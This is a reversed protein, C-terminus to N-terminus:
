ERVGVEQSQLTAGSAASDVNMHRRRRDDCWEHLLVLRVRKIRLNATRDPLKITEWTRGQAREYRAVYFATDEPVSERGM